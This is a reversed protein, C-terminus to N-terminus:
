HSHDLQTHDLLTSGIDSLPDPTSSELIVSRDPWPKAGLEQLGDVVAQWADPYRSLVRMLVLKIHEFDQSQDVVPAVPRFINGPKWVFDADITLSM